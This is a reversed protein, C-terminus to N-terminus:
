TSINIGCTRNGVDRERERKCKWDPMWKILLINRMIWLIKEGRRREYRCERGGTLESHSSQSDDHILLATKIRGCMWKHFHHHTKFSYRMIHIYIAIIHSSHINRVFIYEIIHTICYYFAICPTFYIFITLKKEATIPNWKESLFYLIEQFFEISFPFNQIRKNSMKIVKKHKVHWHTGFILSIRHFDNM